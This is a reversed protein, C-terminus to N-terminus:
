KKRPRATKKKAPASRAAPKKASRAPKGAPKPKSKSKSTPAKKVAPKKPPLMEPMLKELQYHARAQLQMVHVVVSGLDVLVWESRELGEIGRPGEGVEKAKAAVYEALSRVHRSSTGTCIIWWDTVTTHPMVDLVQINLGKLDELAEVALTVLPTRKPM